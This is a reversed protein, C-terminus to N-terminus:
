LLGKEKNWKVKYDLINEAPLKQEIKNKLQNLLEQSKKVKDETNNHTCELFLCICTYQM